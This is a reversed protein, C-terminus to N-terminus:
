IANKKAEYVKMGAYFATSLTDAFADQSMHISYPSRYDVQARSIIRRIVQIDDDNWTEVAHKFANDILNDINM